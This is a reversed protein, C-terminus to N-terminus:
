AAEVMRMTSQFLSRMERLAMSAARVPQEGLVQRLKHRALWVQKPRPAALNLTRTPVGDIQDADLHYVHAILRAFAFRTMRDPGVVHFTGQQEQEVLSLAAEALDVGYTPQGYQDNAVSLRQMTRLTRVTRYVFNKGQRDPGYVWSTRLILHQDPLILRIAEEADAKSRAYVSKPQPTDCEHQAHKSDGFVHDSSFFVLKPANQSVQRIAEAVMVAGDVNVARCEEPHEEARDVNTFAAPLYVVDPRTMRMVREIAIGDALDIPYLGDAKTRHSTGFVDMGRGQCLAYIQAGVQGSAGFILAKM